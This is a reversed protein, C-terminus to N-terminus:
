KQQLHWQGDEGKEYTAGKYTRTEPKGTHSPTNRTQIAVREADALDIYNAADAPTLPTQTALAFLSDVNALGDVVLAVTAQATAYRETDAPIFTVSLRHKGATLVDGAAPVYVFTGPVSARADLQAASLPTGYSIVAPTPWAITAPTTKTITLPVSAQATTYNATDMPTFTVDLTHRGPPLIEGAAPAYVFTGPVSATACLQAADLSSGEPISAPTPWAIAPAAQAV